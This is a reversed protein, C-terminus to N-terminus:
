WLGSSRGGDCLMFSFWRGLSAVKGVGGDFADEFGDVRLEGM